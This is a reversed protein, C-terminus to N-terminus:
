DLVFLKSLAPCHAVRVTWTLQSTRHFRMSPLYIIPSICPIAAQSSSSFEVAARRLLHVYVVQTKASSLLNNECM